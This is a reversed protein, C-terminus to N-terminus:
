PIGAGIVIVESGASGEVSIPNYLSQDPNWIQLGNSADIRIVGAIIQQVFRADAEAKTYFEVRPTPVMSDPDIIATNVRVAIRLIEQPTSEGPPIATIALFCAVSTQGGLLLEIGPTNLNLSGEKYSVVKLADADGTITGMDTNAMDAQFAILYTGTQELAVQVNGAAAPSIVSLHTWTTPTTGTATFVVGTANSAAGINTFDDGTVFSVIKYKAGSILTGSTKSINELYTQVGTAGNGDTAPANFPILASEIGRITLTFSGDYPLPSLTVRYKANSGGGGVTLASVSVSAGASDTSLVAFTGANQFVRVTQVEQLNTDGDILTGPVVLSLPALNEAFGVLETQAGNLNWTIFFYLDGESTVVVGGEATIFATSNLAAQVDSAAANYALNTTVEQLVSLHTWTTPTTGTATFVVGTANSAAGVNTFSDGAVYTIIKFRKGTTITGSTLDIGSLLYWTGAVPAVFGNGIAAEISSWGSWSQPDFVRGTTPSVIPFVQAVQLPLVEGFTPDAFQKDSDSNLSSVARKRSAQCLFELM